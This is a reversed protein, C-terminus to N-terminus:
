SRPYALKSSHRGSWNQLLGKLRAERMALAVVLWAEYPMTGRVSNCMICSVVVNDEVHGMANDKRDLTLPLIEDGCYTCPGNM